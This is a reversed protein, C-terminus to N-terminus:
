KIYQKENEALRWEIENPEKNMIPIIYCGNSIDITPFVIQILTKLAENAEDGEFYKFYCKDEDYISVKVM